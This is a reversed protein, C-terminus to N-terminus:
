GDAREWQSSISKPFRWALVHFRDGLFLGGESSNSYGVWSQFPVRNLLDGSVLTKTKKHKATLEQAADKLVSEAILNRQALGTVETFAVTRFVKGPRHTAYWAYEEPTLNSLVLMEIPSLVMYLHQTRPGASPHGMRAGVDEPSLNEDCTHNEFRVLESPGEMALARGSTKVLFCRCPADIPICHLANNSLGTKTKKGSAAAKIAATTDDAANRWGGELLFDFAPKADKIPLELFISRGYFHKASGPSRHWGLAEVSLSTAVLAGQPLTVILSVHQERTTNEFM